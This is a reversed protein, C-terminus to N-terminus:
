PKKMPAPQPERPGEYKPDKPNLQRSRNDGADKHAPNNPNKVDSRQDNDQHQKDGM